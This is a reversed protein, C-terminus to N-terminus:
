RHPRKQTFLAEALRKNNQPLAIDQLVGANENRTLNQNSYRNHKTKQKM